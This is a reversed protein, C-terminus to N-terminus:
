RALEKLLRELAQTVYGTAVWRRVEAMTVADRAIAASVETNVLRWVALQRSLEAHTM